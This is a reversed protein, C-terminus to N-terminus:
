DNYMKRQAKYMDMSVSLRWKKLEEGRAQQQKQMEERQGPTLQPRGGGGRAGGGAQAYAVAPSGAYAEAADSMFEIGSSGSAVIYELMKEASTHAEPRDRFSYTIVGLQVGSFVSNPKAALLAGSLAVVVVLAFKGFNRRNLNM